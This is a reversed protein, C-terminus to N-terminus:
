AQEYIDIEQAIFKNTNLKWSTPKLTYSVKGDESITSKLVKCKVLVEEDPVIVIKRNM